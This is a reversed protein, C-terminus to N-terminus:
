SREVYFYVIVIVIAILGYPIIAASIKQKPTGPKRYNLIAKSVTLALFIIYLIIM